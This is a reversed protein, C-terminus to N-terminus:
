STRSASAQIRQGKFFEGVEDRVEIQSGMSNLAEHENQKNMEENLARLNHRLAEMQTTIRDLAPIVYFYIFASGCFVLAYAAKPAADNVGAMFAHWANGSSLKNNYTQPGRLNDPPPTSGSGGTSTSFRSVLPGGSSTPLRGHRDLASPLRPPARAMKTVVSRRLAAVAAM